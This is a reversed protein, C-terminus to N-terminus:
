LKSTEAETLMAAMMLRDIGLANGTVGELSPLANLLEHDIKHEPKNRTKRIKNNQQWVTLITEPDSEEDYANCIELGNIYMEFRASTGDKNLKSMGRLWPPWNRLTFAKSSQTLRPTLSQELISSFLFDRAELETANGQSFSINLQNALSTLTEIRTDFPSLLTQEWIRPLELDETPGPRYEEPLSNLLELTFERMEDLTGYMYWELMIFEPLHIGTEPDDRFCHAFEFIGQFDNHLTPWLKKLAFEPSTALIGRENISGVVALPDLFPELAASSQLQPTVVEFFNHSLLKQRLRTILKARSVLNSNM